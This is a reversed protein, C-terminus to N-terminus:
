IYRIKHQGPGDTLNSTLTAGSGFRKGGGPRSVYEFCVRFTRNPHKTQVDETDVHSVSELVLLNSPPMQEILM